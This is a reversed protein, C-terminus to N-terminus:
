GFSIFFLNHHWIPYWRTGLNVFLSGIMGLHGFWRSLWFTKTTSKLFILKHFNFLILGKDFHQNRPIFWPQIKCSLISSALICLTYSVQAETLLFPRMIFQSFCGNWNDFYLKHLIINAILKHNYYENRSYFFWIDIRCSTNFRM